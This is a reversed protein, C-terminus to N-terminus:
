CQRCIHWLLSTHCFSLTPQCPFCFDIDVMSLPELNWNNWVCTLAGSSKDTVNLLICFCFLFNHNLQPLLKDTWQYSCLAWKGASLMNDALPLTLLIRYLQDTPYEISLEVWIIFFYGFRVFCLLLSKLSVVVHYLAHRLVFRQNKQGRDSWSNRWM